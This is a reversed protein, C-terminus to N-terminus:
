GNEGRKRREAIWAAGALLAFVGAGSGWLMASGPMHALMPVTAYLAAMVAWVVAVAALLRVDFTM